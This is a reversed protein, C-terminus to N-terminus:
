DLVKIIDFGVSITSLLHQQGGLFLEQMYCMM